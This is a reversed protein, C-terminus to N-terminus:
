ASAIEGEVALLRNLLEAAQVGLLVENRVDVDGNLHDLSAATGPRAKACCSVCSKGVAENVLALIRVHM